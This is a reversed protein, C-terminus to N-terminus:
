QKFSEKNYELNAEATDDLRPYQKRKAQRSCGGRLSSPPSTKIFEVVGRYVVATATEEACGEM